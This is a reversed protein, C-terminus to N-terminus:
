KKLEGKFWNVFPINAPDQKYLVALYFSFWSGFALAELAGALGHETKVTFDVSKIKQKALVKKTLLARKQIVAYYAPSNLFLFKIQKNIKKPNKLGELLHHNLEPLNFYDAVCKASENIQNVLIHGNASLNGASVIMPAVQKFQLAIKKAPNHKTKSDWNFKQGAEAVYDVVRKLDASKVDLVKVAKFIALIAGLQIGVAYRPQNSPNYETSFKVVPIKKSAAIELLKGGSALCCVKTKAKIAEAVCNLTEETSGSYSIALVLTKTNVFAPIHYDRTLIVPKKLEDGLASRILESALNSGGMGCIVINEIAGYAKPLKISQASNWGSIIQEPLLAIADAVKSKNYRRLFMKIDLFGMNSILNRISKNYWSVAKRM